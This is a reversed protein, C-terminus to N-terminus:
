HVTLFTCAMISPFNCNHHMKLQQLLFQKAFWVVQQWTQIYAIKMLYVQSEQESLVCKSIFCERGRGTWVELSFCRRHVTLSFGTYGSASSYSCAHVLFHVSQSVIFNNQCVLRIVMSWTNFLCNLFASSLPLLLSPVSLSWLNVSTKTCLCLM